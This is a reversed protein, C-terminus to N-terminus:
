LSCFKIVGFFTTDPLACLRAVAEMKYNLKKLEEPKGWKEKEEKNKNFLHRLRLVGMLSILVFNKKSIYKCGIARLGYINYCGFFSQVIQMEKSLNLEVVRKLDEKEEGIEISEGNKTQLKIHTIAKDMDVNFKNFFDNEKLELEKTEIDDKSIDGCHQETPTKKGTMTDTYVCQIGLVIKDKINEDGAKPTGYWLKVKSLIQYKWMEPGFLENDKFHIREIPVYGYTPTSEYRDKM